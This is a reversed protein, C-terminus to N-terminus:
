HQVEYIKDALKPWMGRTLLHVVLGAAAEFVEAIKLSCVPPQWGGHWEGM